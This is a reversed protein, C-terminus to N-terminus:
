GSGAVDGDQQQHNERLKHQQRHLDLVILVHAEDADPGDGRDRRHRAHHFADAAAADAEQVVVDRQVIGVGLVAAQLVFQAPQLHFVNEQVVLQVRGVAGLRQLNKLGRVGELVSAALTIAM